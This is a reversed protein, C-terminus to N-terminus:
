QYSEEQRVDKQVLIGGHEQEMKAMDMDPESDHGVHSQVSSVGRLVSLHYSETANTTTIPKSASKDTLSTSSPSKSSTSSRLSSLSFKSRVSKLM